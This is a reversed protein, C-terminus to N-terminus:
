QWIDLNLINLAHNGDKSLRYNKDFSQLIHFDEIKNYIQEVEDDSYNRDQIIINLKHKLFLIDESVLMKYLEM